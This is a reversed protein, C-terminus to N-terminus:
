RTRERQAAGEATVAAALKGLARQELQRVREASIGLRDAIQRLSQEEGDIGFRARLIARERSSLAGLLSRLEEAEIAALMREYEGGAMPDAVLEGLPSVVQDDQGAPEEMSRPAREVALLSEVQERQLGTRAALDAASPEEGTEQMHQRYADKVRALQRLARDSLVTPRTLEAVLQQMAQRVWWAAYPWFAGREPEYRELARLLGVVGEQLLEMRELGPADRYIRAIAAIRPMFAAVLRARAATDGGQAAEVLSREAADPLPRQRGLREIEKATPPRGEPEPRGLALALERDVVRSHRAATALAEGDLAQDASDAQGRNRDTTASAV